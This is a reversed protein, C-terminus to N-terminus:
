RLGTAEHVVIVFATMGSEMLVTTGSVVIEGKEPKGNRTLSYKRRTGPDCLLEEGTVIVEGLLDDRKGWDYDMVRLVVSLREPPTDGKKVNIHLNGQSLEEDFYADAGAGNLVATSFFNGYVYQKQGCYQKRGYYHDTSEDKKVEIHSFGSGHLEVKVGRCKITKGKKIQLILTGQVEEGAFYTRTKRDLEINYEEVNSLWNSFAM